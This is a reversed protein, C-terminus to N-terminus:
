VLYEMIECDSLLPCFISSHTEGQLRYLCSQDASHSKLFHFPIRNILGGGEQVASSIPNCSKWWLPVPRTSPLRRPPISCRIPSGTRAPMGPPVQETVKAKVKVDGRRSRVRRESNTFTGDDECWAAAPLIVDAFRTTETPFIDQCVVFEASALEHEVKAIDPESNALNEGFIYFAKVTGDVLGEMMQPIMLGNKDPLNKVGWAKEFKARADPNTVAQYGPFVNPLAGM